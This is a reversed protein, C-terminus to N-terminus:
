RANRHRDVCAELQGRGATQIAILLGHSVAPLLFRRKLEHQLRAMLHATAEADALARHARGTAPLQLAQILTGLKHNLTNPFIRRSLLMSCAFEQKRPQNIRRMETDWFKCDFSANHAALPRNGVFAAAQRMVIEVDPAHRVMEDTIGTLSQIDYPIRVGPNMLSQYRDVIRDGDMLVVAIETPRAGQAPSLGTTEFDLVAHTSM